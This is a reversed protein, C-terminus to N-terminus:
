RCSRRTSLPKDLHAPKGTSLAASIEYGILSGVIPAVLYAGVMLPLSLQRVL